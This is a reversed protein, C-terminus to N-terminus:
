SIVQHLRYFSFNFIHVKVVNVYLFPKANVVCLEVREKYLGTIITSWHIILLKM